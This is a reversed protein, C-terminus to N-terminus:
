EARGLSKAPDGRAEMAPASGWRSGDETVEVRVRRVATPVTHLVRVDAIGELVRGLVEKTVSADVPLEEGGPGQPRTSGCSEKTGTDVLIGDLEKAAPLRIGHKAVQANLSGRMGVVISLEHEVVAGVGERWADISGSAERLLGGGRHVSEHEMILEVVVLDRGDGVM